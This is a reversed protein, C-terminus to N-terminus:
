IGIVPIRSTTCGSSRDQRKVSESPIKIGQKIPLMGSARTSGQSYEDPQRTCVDAPGFMAVSRAECYFHWIPVTYNRIM